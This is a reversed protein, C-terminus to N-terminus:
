TNGMWCCGVLLILMNTVTKMLIFYIDHRYRFSVTKYVLPAPQFSVALGIARRESTNVLLPKTLATEHALQIRCIRFIVKRVVWCVFNYLSTTSGNVPRCRFIIVCLKPHILSNKPRQNCIQNGSKELVYRKEYSVVCQTRFSSCLNYNIQTFRKLNLRALTHKIRTVGRFLYM